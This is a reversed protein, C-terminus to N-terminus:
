SSLSTTSTFSKNIKFMCKQLVRAHKEGADTALVDLMDLCVLLCVPLYILLCVLLCSVDDDDLADYFDAIDAAIGVQILLLQSLEDSSMRGKPLMWRGVILLGLMFQQTVILSQFSTAEQEAKVPFWQQM